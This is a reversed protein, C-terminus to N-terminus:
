AREFIALARKCFPEAEAYRGQAEYLSALNNLSTVVDPHQEGFTAEAVRLSEQALPTAEAFKGQQYLQEVQANLEKWRGEQAGLPHAIALSLLSVCIIRLLSRSIV